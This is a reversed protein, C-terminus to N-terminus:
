YGDIKNSFCIIDDFDHFKCCFEGYFMYFEGYFNVDDNVIWRSWNKERSRLEAERLERWGDLWPHDELELGSISEKLHKKECIKGLVQPHHIYSVCQCQHINSYKFSIQFIDYSM